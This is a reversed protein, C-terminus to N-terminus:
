RLGTITGGVRPCAIGTSRIEYTGSFQTGSSNSTINAAFTSRSSATSSALETCSIQVSCNNSGYTTVCAWGEIVASGNVDFTTQGQSVAGSTIGECLIPDNAVETTKSTVAYTGSLKSCTTQPVPAPTPTPTPAPHEEPGCATLALACAFLVAFYSKM